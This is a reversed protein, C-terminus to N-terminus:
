AIGQGNWYSRRLLTMDLFLAVYDPKIDLANNLPSSLSLPLM